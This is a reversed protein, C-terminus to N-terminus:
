TREMWYGDGDGRLREAGALAALVSRAAKEYLDASLCTLPSCLAAHIAQAVLDVDTDMAAVEHRLLEAQVLQAAVLEARLREFEAMMRAGGLIYYEAPRFPVPETM